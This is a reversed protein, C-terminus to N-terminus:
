QIRVAGSPMPAGAALVGTQGTTLRIRVPINFTSPAATPQTAAHQVVVPGLAQTMATFAQDRAQKAAKLQTIIGPAIPNGTKQAAEQAKAYESQAQRYNENAQKYQDASVRLHDVATQHNATTTTRNAAIGEMARDHRAQESLREDGQKAKTFDSLVKENQKVYFPVMKGTTHIVSKTLKGDRGIRDLNMTVPANTATSMDYVTTTHDLPNFLLQYRGSAYKTFADPDRTKLEDLDDVGSITTVRTAGTTDMDEAAQNLTRQWAAKAEEGRVQLRQSGLMFQQDWHHIVAQQYKQVDAQRLNAMAQTFQQQQQREQLLRSAAFGSGLAQGFTQGPRSGALGGLAGTLINGVMHGVTPAGGQQVVQGTSPDAVYSPMPKGLTQVAAHGLAQAGSAIAGPLAGIEQPAHVVAHAVDGLGSGIDNLIGM